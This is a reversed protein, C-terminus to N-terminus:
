INVYTTDHYGNMSTGKLVTNGYYAPFKQILLEANRNGFTAIGIVRAEVTDNVNLYTIEDLALSEFEYHGDLDPLGSEESTFTETQNIFIAYYSTPTAATVNMTIRYFGEQQIVVQVFAETALLPISGYGPYAQEVTLFTFSDTLLIISNAVLSWCIWVISSADKTWIPFTLTVMTNNIYGTDASLFGTNNSVLKTVFANNLYANTIVSNTVNESNINANNTITLNTLNLSDLNIGGNANIIGNVSLNGNIQEDNSVFLSECVIQDDFQSRGLVLLNTEVKLDNVKTPKLLTLPPPPPPPPPM